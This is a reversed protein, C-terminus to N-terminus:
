ARQVRKLIKTVKQIFSGHAQCDDENERSAVSLPWSRALSGILGHTLDVGISTMEPSSQEVFFSEVHFM